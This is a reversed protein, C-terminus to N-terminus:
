AHRYKVETQEGIELDVSAKPEGRADKGEGKDKGDAEKAHDGGADKEGGAQGAVGIGLARNAGYKEWAGTTEEEDEIGQAHSLQKRRFEPDEDMMKQWQKHCKRRLLQGWVIFSVVGIVMLAAISGGVYLGIRNHIAATANYTTRAFLPTNIIAKNFIPAM